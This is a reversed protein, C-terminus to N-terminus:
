MACTAVHCMDLCSCKFLKKTNLKICLQKLQQFIFATRYMKYDEIKSTFLLFSKWHHVQTGSKSCWSTHIQVCTFNFWIIQFLLGSIMILLSFLLVKNLALVLKNFKSFYFPRAHSIRFFIYMKYYLEVNWKLFLKWSFATFGEM